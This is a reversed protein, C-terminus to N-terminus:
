YYTILVQYHRVLMNVVNGVVVVLLLVLPAGGINITGDNKPGGRDMGHGIATSKLKPQRMGREKNSQIASQLKTSLENSIQKM